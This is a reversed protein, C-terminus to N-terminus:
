QKSTHSAKKLAHHRWAATGLQGTAILTDPLQYVYTGSDTYGTTSKLSWHGNSASFTGAHPPADDGAESHFVYTGDRRIDWVWVGDKMPLEWVGVTDPDVGAPPHSQSQASNCPRMANQAIFCPDVTPTARGPGRGCLGTNNCNEAEAINADQIPNTDDAHAPVGCLLSFVIPVIRGLAAVKVGAAHFGSPRSIPNITRVNKEWILRTEHYPLSSIVIL